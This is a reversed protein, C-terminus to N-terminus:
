GFLYTGPRVGLRLYENVDWSLRPLGLPCSGRM